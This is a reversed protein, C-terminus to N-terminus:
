ETLEQILKHVTTVEKIRWVNSGCFVLGHDVDGEVANILARTICYPTTAPDCSTLCHFCEKPPIRAIRVRRVFPNLLARGIMHVPSKVLTIDEKRAKVYMEKFAPAADCEETAVFRTAMQVGSLGLSLYHAIDEKTFVGGGFVVPIKKHFKDRFVQVVKLIEQIEHDYSEDNYYKVQERTYGLHGGAKPGEIVVMDATCHHHHDWLKLIVRAAKASGIIPAIKTHYKQVVGPLSIPLGAGSFIIQAGDQAAAEAYREYNQGRSMINVGIIGDKSLSRAKQLEKRIARTNAEITNTKFDPERFGIMATSIVGIGGENAVASALGSLGVGIGMGGQIIPVRATLEGIHLAPFSM